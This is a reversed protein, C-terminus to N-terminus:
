LLCKKGVGLGTHKWSCAIVTYQQYAHPDVRKEHVYTGWDQMRMSMAHCTYPLLARCQRQQTCQFLTLLHPMNVWLWSIHDWKIDIPLLSSKGLLCMQYLAVYDVEPMGSM